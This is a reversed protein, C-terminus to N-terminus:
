ILKEISINLTKAIKAVVYVLPKKIVGREVKTLTTYPIGAKHALKDQSLGLDIRLKKIKKRLKNGQKNEM